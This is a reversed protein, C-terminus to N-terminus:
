GNDIEKIIKSILKRTESDMKYYDRQFRNRVQEDLPISFVRTNEVKQANSLELVRNVSKRSICVSVFEDEEYIREVITELDSYRFENREIGEVYYSGIIGSIEVVKYMYDEDILLLLRAIEM